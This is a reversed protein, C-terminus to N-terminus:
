SKARGRSAGLETARPRWSPHEPGLEERVTGACERFSYVVVLSRHGRLTMAPVAGKDTQAPSGRGDAGGGFQERDAAGEDAAALHLRGM